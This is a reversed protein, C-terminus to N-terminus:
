DARVERGKWSVTKGSRWASRGFLAFFFVLPVPYLLATYWRFSGVRGGLWAVQVAALLYVMSWLLWNGTIAALLPPMMLGSMWAVSLM